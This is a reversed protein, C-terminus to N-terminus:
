ATRAAVVPWAVGIAAVLGAGLPLMAFAADLGAVFPVLAIVVLAAIAVSRAPSGAALALGAAPLRRAPTSTTAGVTLALVIPGPMAVLYAIAAVRIGDVSAGDPPPGFALFWAAPGAALAFALVVVAAGQADDRLGSALDGLPHSSRRAFAAGVRAAAALAFPLLPPFAIGAMAAAGTVVAAAVATLIAWSHHHAAEWAHDPTQHQTETRRHQGVSRSAPPASQRLATM